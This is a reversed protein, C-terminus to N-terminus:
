LLKGEIRALDQAEAATQGSATGVVLGQTVGILIISCSFVDFLDSAAGVRHTGDNVDNALDAGLTVSTSGGEIALREWLGASGSNRISKLFEEPNGDPTVGFVEVQPLTTIATISNPYVLRLSLYAGAGIERVLPSINNGALISSVDSIPNGSNLSIDASGAPVLTTWCSTSSALVSRQGDSKSGDPATNGLTM